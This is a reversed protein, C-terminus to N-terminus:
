ESSGPSAPAVGIEGPRARFMVASAILRRITDVAVPVGEVMNADQLKAQWEQCKSRLAPLDELAARVAQVTEELRGGTDTFSPHPPLFKGCGLAEVRAAHHM